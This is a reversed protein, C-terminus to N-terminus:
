WPGAGAKAEGRGKRDGRRRPMELSGVPFEFHKWDADLRGADILDPWSKQADSAEAGRAANRFRNVMASSLDVRAVEVGLSNAAGVGTVVGLGAGATPGLPTVLGGAAGVLAGAVPALQSVASGVLEQQKIVISLQQTEDEPDYNLQFKERLVMSDTRGDHPRSHQPENYGLLMRVFLTRTSFGAPLGSVKWLTVEITSFRQAQFLTLVDLSDVGAETAVRLKADDKEVSFLRGSPPLLRALRVASYGLYTGLELATFAARGGNLRLAEKLASDLVQGKVDGVNMLWQKQWAYEDIAELVAEARQKSPDEKKVAELVEEPASDQFTFPGNEGITVNFGAECKEKARASGRAAATSPAGLLLLSVLGSFGRRAVDEVRPTGVHGPSTPRAVYFDCVAAGNEACVAKLGPPALSVLVVLPQRMSSEAHADGDSRDPVVAAGAARGAAPDSHLHDPGLVKGQKNDAVYITGSETVFLDVLNADQVQGVIVPELSEAPNISLIRNNDNDVVYLVEEETVCIAVVSESLGIVTELKSGVLKQLKEGWVYLVGNPSCFVLFHSQVNHLVVQGSGNQVSVLRENEVDAVFIEGTPAVALDFIPGFGEIGTVRVGEGVVQQAHTAPKGPKWRFVGGQFDTAYIAGGYWRMSYCPTPYVERGSAETSAGLDPSWHQLCRRKPQFNPPSEIRKQQRIRLAEDVERHLDDDTPGSLTFRGLRFLNEVSISQFDVHQLLM